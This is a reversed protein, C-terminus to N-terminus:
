GVSATVSASAQAAALSPWRKEYLRAVADPGEAEADADEKDHDWKAQARALIEAKAADLSAFYSGLFHHDSNFVLYGGEGLPLLIHRMGPREGALVPWACSQSRAIGPIPELVTWAVILGGETGWNDETPRAGTEELDGFLCVSMPPAPVVQRTAYLPFWPIERELRGLSKGSADLLESWELLGNAGREGDRVQAVYDWNVAKTGVYNGDGDFEDAMVFKSM